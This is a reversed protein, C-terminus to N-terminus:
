SMYTGKGTNIHRQAHTKSWSETLVVRMNCPSSDGSIKSAQADLGQYEDAIIVVNSEQLENILRTATFNKGTMMDNVCRSSAVGPISKVTELSDEILTPVGTKNSGSYSLTLNFLGTAQTM